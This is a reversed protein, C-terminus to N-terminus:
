HFPSAMFRVIVVKPAKIAVVVGASAKPPGSVVPVLRKTVMKRPNPVRMITQWSIGPNTKNQEMSLVIKPLAAFSVAGTVPLYVYSITVSISFSSIM